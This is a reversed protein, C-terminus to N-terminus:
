NGRPNGDFRPPQDPRTPRSEDGSVERNPDAANKMQLLVARRSLNIRGQHDIETVKVTIADGVNVVDTVKGVRNEDLQSIHCLGEKGSAGFIGPIIE